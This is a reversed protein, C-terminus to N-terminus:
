KLAVSIELELLCSLEEVVVTSLRVEVPQM